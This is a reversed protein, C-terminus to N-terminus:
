EVDAVTIQIQVEQKAGCEDDGTASAKTCFTIDRMAEGLIRGPVQEKFVCKSNPANCKFAKVKRM